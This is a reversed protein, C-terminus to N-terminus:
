AEGSRDVRVCHMCMTPGGAVLGGCTICARITGFPPAFAGDGVARWTSDEKTARRKARRRCKPCLSRYKPDILDQRSEHTTYSKECDACTITVKPAVIRM